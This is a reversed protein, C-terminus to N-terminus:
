RGDVEVIDPLVRVSIPTAARSPPGLARNVYQGAVTRLAEDGAESFTKIKVEVTVIKYPEEVEDLGLERLIANVVQRQRRDEDRDGEGDRLRNVLVRRVHERSLVAGAEDDPEDTTLNDPTLVSQYEFHAHSDSDRTLGSIVFGPRGIWVARVEDVGTIHQGPHGDFRDCHHSLYRATCRNAERTPFTALPLEDGPRVHSFVDSM